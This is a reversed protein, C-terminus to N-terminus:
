SVVSLIVFPSFWTEHRDHWILIRILSNAWSNDIVFQNKMESIRFWLLLDKQCACNWFGHQWCLCLSHTQLDNGWERTHTWHLNLLITCGICHSYFPNKQMSTLTSLDIKIKNAVCILKWTLKSNAHRNPWANAHWFVRSKGNMAIDNM